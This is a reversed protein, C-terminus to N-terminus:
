STLVELTKEAIQPWSFKEARNLGKAKLKQSLASDSLVCEIGKAIDSADYPDVLIGADGVVEPLSSTHSVIVPTSCAMAELPPL